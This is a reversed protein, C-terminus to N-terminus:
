DEYAIVMLSRSGHAGIVLTQEIDATKSPGSMWTLHQPLPISLRSQATVLDPVLTNAPVLVLLHQALFALAREPLSRASLLVAANEAVAAEATLVGLQVDDLAHPRTGGDHAVSWGAVGELLPAATISAVCRGGARAIAESAAAAMSARDVRGVFTGGVAALMRGFREWTAEYHPPPYAGPHPRLAGARRFRAIFAREDM